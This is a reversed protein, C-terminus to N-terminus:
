PVSSTLAEWWYSDGKLMSISGFQEGRNPDGQFRGRYEGSLIFARVMEARRVRALAVREDRADEGPQTFQNLKSLWFNYGDFNNDPANDPNRRLYAFYQMLVFAPNYLKNYVSGSEVVSRLSRARGADDGTGFASVAADREGQSPTAGTNAFLSDVYQGANQGGHATQFAPRAVFEEAYHQKNSELLAEFGPQGVVVGRGIEQTEDLFPLYRPNGPQDGFAAKNVRIVFYGTQQFEISLFFATSVDVRKRDRCAADSGCSALQNTWFAQGSADAQRSLFDHYHQGVFTADDDIPNTTGDTTENDDIQVTTSQTGLTGGEISTLTVTLAEPGEAYADETILVPIFKFSEQANFTLHGTIRTFDGRQSATGDSLVYTVESRGDQPGSRSVPILVQVCGETVNSPAGLSVITTPGALPPQPDTSQREFAGIDGNDGGAPPPVTPDDVPRPAGRNDTTVPQDDIDRALGNDIAVSGPLPILTGPAFNLGIGPAASSGFRDTSNFCCAGSSINIYNYGSSIFGSGFVERASTPFRILNFSVITSRIRIGGSIGGSIGGGRGDSGGGDGALGTQNFMVDSNSLKLTDPSSDNHIGGGNGGNGNSINQGGGMGGNGTSNGNIICNTITLAGVFTNNYIGGGRGGSGATGNQGMLVNAGSGTGNASISSRLITMTATNHIGGGHGGFGGTRNSGGLAVGGSGTRNTNISCNTITMTTGPHMGDFINAIGGGQGGDGGDGGTPGADSGNGTSNDNVTCDTMTMVGINSIGGGSGGFRNVADPGGHGTSNNSVACGAMTMTGENRIGGGGGPPVASFFGIAEATTNNSVICNTMTLTGFNLVGGGGGMVLGLPSPARGNSITLGNISATVGAGIRFIRYDGGTDRRVTLQNAGPGNITMNTSLDPLAGTLNITGIVSFGIADATPDLNAQQIAARLTCAGTADACLSDSLLADPTDALSNVTFNSASANQTLFLSLGVLLTVASVCCLRTLLRM